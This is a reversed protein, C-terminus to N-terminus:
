VKWTNSLWESRAIWRGIAESKSGPRVDFETGETPRCLLLQNLDVIVKRKVTFSFRMGALSIIRWYVRITNLWGGCRERLHCGTMIGVEKIEAEM